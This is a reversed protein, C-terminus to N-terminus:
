KIEKCSVINAGSCSLEVVDEENLLLMNEHEAAKAKFINDETDILYVYTNM